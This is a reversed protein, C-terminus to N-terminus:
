FEIVPIENERMNQEITWFRAKGRSLRLLVVRPDDVNGGFCQLAL